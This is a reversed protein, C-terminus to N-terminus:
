FININCQYDMKNSVVGLRVFSLPGLVLLIFTDHNWSRNLVYESHSVLIKLSLRFSHFIIEENNEFYHFQCFHKILLHSIQLKQSFEMRPAYNTSPVSYSKYNMLKEKFWAFSWPIQGLLLIWTNFIHKRKIPWGGEVTFKGSIYKSHLCMWFMILHMAAYISM